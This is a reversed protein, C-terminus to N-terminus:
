HLVSQYAPSRIHRLAAASSTRNSAAVIKSYVTACASPHVVVRSLGGCEDLMNRLTSCCGLWPAASARRFNARTARGAVCRRGTPITQSAATPATLSGWISRTRTRLPRAPMAATRLATPQETQWITRGWRRHPGFADLADASFSQQSSPTILTRATRRPALVDCATRM